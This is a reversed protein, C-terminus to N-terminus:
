VSELLTSSLHDPRDIRYMEKVVSVAPNQELKPVRNYNYFSNLVEIHVRLTHGILFLFYLFIEDHEKDREHM